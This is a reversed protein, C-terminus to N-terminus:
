IIGGLQIEYHIKVVYCELVLALAAKWTFNVLFKMMEICPELLMGLPGPGQGSSGTHLGAGKERGVAPVLGHSGVDKVVWV